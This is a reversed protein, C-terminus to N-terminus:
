PDAIGNLVLEAVSLFIFVVLAIWFQKWSWTLIASGFAYILYVGAIGWLVSNVTLINEWM